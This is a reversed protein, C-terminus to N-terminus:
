ISLFGLRLLLSYKLYEKLPLDYTDNTSGSVGSFKPFVSFPKVPTATKLRQFYIKELYHGKLDDVELYGNLLYRRYFSVSCKFLRTDAIPKNRQARIFLLEDKEHREVIQKLNKVQIRGTLKYFSAEPPLHKSHELAYAIIEGEGYGKGQKEINTKNGEFRLIELQTGTSAAVTQWLSYDGEFMTNECFIIIGFIRQNLVSLLNQEYQRWRVLPDKLETLPTNSVSPDISASLLLIRKNREM